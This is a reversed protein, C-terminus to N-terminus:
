SYVATEAAEALKDYLKAMSFLHSKIDNDSLREALERNLRAHDRYPCAAKGSVLRLWDVVKSDFAQRRQM